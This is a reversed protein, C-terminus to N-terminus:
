DSEDNAADDSGFTGNFFRKSRVYLLSCGGVEESHDKKETPKTYLYIYTEKRKTRGKLCWM